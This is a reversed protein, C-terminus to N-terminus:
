VRRVNVTGEFIRTVVSSVTLELKYPLKLTNATMKYANSKASPFIITFANPGTIVIRENATTLTDITSSYDSSLVTMKLTANVLTDDVGTTSYTIPISLDQGQILDFNFVPVDITLNVTSM